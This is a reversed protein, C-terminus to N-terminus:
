PTKLNDHIYVLKKKNFLNEEKLQQFKLSSEYSLFNIRCPFILCFCPSVNAEFILLIKFIKVKIGAEKLDKITEPVGDQLKDEVGTVGLVTLNKEILSYIEFEREVLSPTAQYHKLDSCLKDAEEKSLERKAVVLVRLGDQSFEALHEM